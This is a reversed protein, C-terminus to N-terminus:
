RPVYRAIIGRAIEQLKPPENFRLFSRLEPLLAADATDEMARLAVLKALELPRALGFMKMAQKGNVVSGSYKPYSRLGLLPAVLETAAEVFTGNFLRVTLLEGSRPSPIRAALEYSDTLPASAKPHKAVLVKHPDYRYPRDWPDKMPVRALYTPVLDPSLEVMGHVLPYGSHALEFRALAHTTLFLDIFTTAVRDM